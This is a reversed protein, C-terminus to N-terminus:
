LIENDNPIIVVTDLLLHRHLNNERGAIKNAELILERKLRDWGKMESMNYVLSEAGGIITFKGTKGANTEVIYLMTDINSGSVSKKDKERVSQLKDVVDERIKMFEKESDLIVSRPNDYPLDSESINNNELVNNMAEEAVESYSPRVIFDAESDLEFELRKKHPDNSKTLESLLEIYESSANKVQSLFTKEDDDKTKENKESEESM